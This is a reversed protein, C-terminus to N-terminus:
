DGFGRQTGSALPLSTVDFWMPPGSVPFIEPRQYIWQAMAREIEILGSEDGLWLYWADSEDKLLLRDTEFRHYAVPRVYTALLM